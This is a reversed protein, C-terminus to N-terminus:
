QLNVRVDNRGEPEISNCPPVYHKYMQCEAADRIYDKTIKAYRFFCKKTTLFNKICVNEENESLHELFRKRIDKSQGIYFVYYNEDEKKYYSLRYVGPLNDLLSKISDENLKTLKTWTLKWNEM